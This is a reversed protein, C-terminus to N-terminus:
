VLSPKNEDKKECRLPIGSERTLAKHVEDHLNRLHERLQHIVDHQDEILFTMRRIDDLLERCAPGVVRSLKKEPGISTAYDFDDQQRDDDNGETVQEAKTTTQQQSSNTLLGQNSNMENCFYDLTMFPSNRYVPSLANWNWIPFKKFVAFFHKCLYPSRHWNSCTCSPMKKDDGFWVEYRKEQSSMESPVLFKGDGTMIIGTADINEALTIKEISHSVMDKPRNHLYEPVKDNYRRYNQSSKINLEYYSFLFVM